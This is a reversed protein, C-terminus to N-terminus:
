RKGKKKGRPSHLPKIDGDEIEQEIEDELDDPDVNYAAGAAATETAAGAEAEFAFDVANSMTEGNHVQCTVTAPETWLSPRVTTSLTGGDEDFTTPEDHGAFFIVSGAFFNEGEVVLEFDPQGVVVSEPALATIVPAPMDPMEPPENISLPTHSVLRSHGPENISEVGM